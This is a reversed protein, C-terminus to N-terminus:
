IYKNYFVKINLINRRNNKIKRKGCLHPYNQKVERKGPRAVKGFEQIQNHLVSIRSNTTTCSHISDGKPL